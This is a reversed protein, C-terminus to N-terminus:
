DLFGRTSSDVLLDDAHVKLNPVLAKTTFYNSLPIRADFIQWASKLEIAREGFQLKEPDANLLASKTTLNNQNGSTHLLKENPFQATRPALSLMGSQPKAFQPVATVGFLDAIASYALFIPCGDSTPQTVNLFTHWASRYFHCNAAPHPPPTENTPVPTTPLWGDPVSCVREAHPVQEPRRFSPVAGISCCVCFIACRASYRRV